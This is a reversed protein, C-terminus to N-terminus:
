GLQLICVESFMRLMDWWILDETWTKLEDGPRNGLDGLWTMLKELLCILPVQLFQNTGMAMSVRAYAEGHVLCPRIYRIENQVLRQVPYPYKGTNTYRIINTCNRTYWITYLSIIGSEVMALFKGINKLPDISIFFGQQLFFYGQRWAANRHIESNQVKFYSLCVAQGAGWFQPGWVLKWEKNPRCTKIVQQRPEKPPLM